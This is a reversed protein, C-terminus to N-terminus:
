LQPLRRCLHQLRTRNAFQNWGSLSRLHRQQQQLFPLWGCVSCGHMIRNNQVDTDHLQHMHVSKPGATHRQVAWRCTAVSCRRHLGLVVAVELAHRRSQGPRKGSRSEFFTSSFKNLEVTLLDVKVACTPMGVLNLVKLVLNTPVLVSIERKM